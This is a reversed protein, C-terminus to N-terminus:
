QHKINEQYHYMKIHIDFRLIPNKFNINYLINKQLHLIIKTLICQYNNILYNLILINYSMINVM